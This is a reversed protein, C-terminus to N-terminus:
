PPRAHPPTSSGATPAPPTPAPRPAPPPPGLSRGMEEAVVLYWFVTDGSKEYRRGSITVYYRGKPGDCMRPCPPEVTCSLVGPVTLKLAVTEEPERASRSYAPCGYRVAEITAGPVLEGLVNRYRYPPDGYAGQYQAYVVLLKGDADTIMFAPSPPPDFDGSAPPFYRDVWKLDV